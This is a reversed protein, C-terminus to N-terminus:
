HGPFPISSTPLLSLLSNDQHTNRSASVTLPTPLVRHTPVRLPLLNGSSVEGSLTGRASPEGTPRNTLRGPLTGKNWCPALYTRLGGHHCLFALFISGFPRIGPILSTRLVQTSQFSIVLHSSPCTLLVQMSVLSGGVQDRLVTYAEWSVSM